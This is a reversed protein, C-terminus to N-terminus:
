VMTNAFFDGSFGTKIGVLLIHIISFDRVSFCTIGDLVVILQSNLTIWEGSIKISFNVNKLM